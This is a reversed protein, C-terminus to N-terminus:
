VPGAAAAAALVVAAAAAADASPDASGFNVAAIEVWDSNLYIFIIIPSLINTFSFHTQLPNKQNTIALKFIVM